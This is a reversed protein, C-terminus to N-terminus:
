HILPQNFKYANKFMGSMDEVNQVNWHSLPQNFVEAGSFMEKMSRVNQVNWHDLPQNFKVASWFMGSMDEVHSVDWNEINTNFSRALAFMRSMSVTKSLNPRDSADLVFEACGAFMEAMTEWANSGWQKVALVKWVPDDAAHDTCLKIGPIHGRMRITKQGPDSYACHGADVGKLEFKGDGDCDVDFRGGSAVSLTYNGERMMRILFVFDDASNGAPVVDRVSHESAQAPSAPKPTDAVACSTFLILSTLLSVVAGIRM